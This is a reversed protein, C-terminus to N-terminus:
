NHGWCHFSIADKDQNTQILQKIEDDSWYHGNKGLMNFNLIRTEFKDPYNTYYFNGYLDYDSPYSETDV